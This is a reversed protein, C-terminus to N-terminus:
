GILCKDPRLYLVREHDTQKLAYVGREEIDSRKYQYQLDILLCDKGNWTKLVNEIERNLTKDKDINPRKNPSGKWYLNYSLCVRIGEAIPNHKIELNPDTFYAAYYANFASSHTDIGFSHPITENKYKTILAPENNQVKYNSPLQIILTAFRDDNETQPPFRGNATFIYLNGLHAKISELDSCELSVAVSEILQKM